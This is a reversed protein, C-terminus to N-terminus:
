PQDDPYLEKIKMVVCSPVIKRVDKRYLVVTWIAFQRYACFRFARNDMQIVNNGLSVGFDNLQLWACKLVERNLCVSQFDTNGTICQVGCEDAHNKMASLERCCICGKPTTMVSCKGCNCWESGTLRNEIDGNQPWVYLPPHNASSKASSADVAAM